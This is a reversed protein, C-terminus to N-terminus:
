FSPRDSLWYFRYPPIVLTDKYLSPSEGSCLDQVQGYAFRGRNRLDILDLSQSARDFNSVVLVNDGTHFPDNRM